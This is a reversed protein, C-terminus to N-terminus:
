AVTLSEIPAPRGVAQGGAAAILRGHEQPGYHESGAFMLREFLRTIGTLGDRERAAGARSWVAVDVAAAATDPALLLRMGNKLTVLRAGALPAPGPAAPASAAGATGCAAVLAIALVFLPHLGAPKM